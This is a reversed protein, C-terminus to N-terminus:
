RGSCHWGGHLGVITRQLTGGVRGDQALSAGVVLHAIGSRSCSNTRPGGARGGRRAGLGRRAERRAGVGGGPDRSMQAKARPEASEGRREKAKELNEDAGGAERSLQVKTRSEVASEGRREKAKEPNWRLRHPRRQQQQESLPLVALTPTNDAPFVGGGCDCPASESKANGGMWQEVSASGHDSSSELGRAQFCALPSLASFAAVRRGRRLILHFGVM